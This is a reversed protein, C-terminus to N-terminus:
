EETTVFKGDRVVIPVLSEPTPGDADGTYCLEGRPSWTQLGCIQELEEKLTEGTVQGEIQEAAERLAFVGNSALLGIGTYEHGAAEVLEALNSERTTRDDPNGEGLLRLGEASGEAAELLPSQVLGVGGYKPAELGVQQAARTFAAALPPVAIQMIVADPNGNRIKTAQASADQADSPLSANVVIEAGGGEEAVLEQLYEFTNEGYANEEYVVGIREAGSALVEEFVRKTVVLDNPSTRFVWESFDQEPDTIDITSNPALMPVMSSAAVPAAALTCSGAPGGIIAVVEDERILETAGRACETTESGPDYTALEITKGNIGGDDNIQEVQAQVAQREPLGYTAIPGSADLLLGVKISDGSGGGVSGEGCGAALLALAAVSAVLVSTKRM